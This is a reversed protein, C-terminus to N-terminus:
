ARRVEASSSASQFAVGLDRKMPLLKAYHKQVVRV